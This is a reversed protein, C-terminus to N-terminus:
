DAEVGSTPAEDAKVMEVERGRLLSGTQPSLEEAAGETEASGVRPAMADKEKGEGARVDSFRCVVAPLGAWEPERDALNGRDGPLAKWEELGDM